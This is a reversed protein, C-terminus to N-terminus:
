WVDFFDRFFCIVQCISHTEQSIQLFGICAGVLLFCVNCICATFASFIYSEIVPTEKLAQGMVKAKILLRTRIFILIGIVGIFISVSCVGVTCNRYFERGIITTNVRLPQSTPEISPFYSSM